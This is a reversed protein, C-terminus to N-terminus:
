LALYYEMPNIDCWNTPMQTIELRQINSIISNHVTSSTKSHVHTKMERLCIYSYFQLTM